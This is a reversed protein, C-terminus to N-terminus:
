RVTVNTKPNGDGNDTHSVRIMVGGGPPLGLEERRKKMDAVYQAMRAQDESPLTETMRKMGAANPGGRVVIRQGPQGNAPPQDKAGDIMQKMKEQEQIQKDLYKKRDAESLAFYEDLMAKQANAATAALAKQANDTLEGNKLVVVPARGQMFKAREDASMNAFQDSEVFKQVDAASADKAPVRRSYWWAGAAGAILLVAAAGIVVNRHSSKM